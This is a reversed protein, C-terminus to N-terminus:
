LPLAMARYDGLSSFVTRTSPDLIEKTTAKQQYRSLLWAPSHISHPFSSNKGGGQGRM